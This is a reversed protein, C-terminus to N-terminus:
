GPTRFLDLISKRVDEGVSPSPADVILNGTGSRPTHEEYYWEGDLEVVGDPPMPEELPADNLAHQMYDIWIPMSLAGGSEHEGLRRPTDYGVWAVAVVQAQYGAFWADVSNHTTGTKGHLDGRQLAASALRATGSRTVEGLLESMVFANRADIV